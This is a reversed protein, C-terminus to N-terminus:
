NRIGMVIEPNDTLANKMVIYNGDVDVGLMLPESKTPLNSTENDTNEIEQETLFTNILKDIHNKTLKIKKKAM